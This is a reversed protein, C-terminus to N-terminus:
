KWSYRSPRGWCVWPWYGGGSPSLCIWPVGVPGLAVLPLAAIGMPYTCITLPPLHMGLHDVLLLYVALFMAAGVGATIGIVDVREWVWAEVVLSIGLM